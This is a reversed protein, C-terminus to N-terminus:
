KIGSLQIGRVLYNEGYLFVLVTPLMYIIGCAFALGLDTSNIYSLYISLPHMNSDKLFILPQEVMNWNDIFNLIALSALGVKCQPLIVKTFTKFYGAGDIKAAECYEDPIGRIFQRLLFVGFASFVGPLIVAHYTDLLNLKKLVIYNPVLAVQYPLLIVIIFGFFIWDRGPFKLKAFGYAALASICIQGLMIPVTMIISNWFMVLFTPKRFLVRYYQMLSVGEPIFKFKMFVTEKDNIEGINDYSYAEVVEKENMFSNTVMFAMPFLLTVTIGILIIYQIIRTLVKKNKIKRSKM